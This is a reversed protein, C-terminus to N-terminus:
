GNSVCLALRDRQTRRNRTDKQDHTLGISRLSRLLLGPDDMAESDWVTEFPVGLVRPLRVMVDSSIRDSMYVSPRTRGCNGIIDWVSVGLYAAAVVIRKGPPTLPLITRLASAQVPNALAIVDFRGDM